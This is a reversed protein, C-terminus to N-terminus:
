RLVIEARRNQASEQSGIPNAGGRARVVIKAGSGRRALEKALYVRVAKARANSLWRRYFWNGRARKATYGDVTVETFGQAAIVAALRSLARKTSPTLKASSGSFRLTGVKVPAAIASYTAPVSASELGDGGLAVVAVKALPGLLGPYTWSSSKAAAVGVPVGNILIRYGKANPAGAWQIISTNASNVRYTASYPAAVTVTILAHVTQIDAGTTVTVPIDIQGSFDSDFAVRLVDHGVITASAVGPISTGADPAVSLTSPADLPDATMDVASKGDTTVPAFVPTSIGIVFPGMHATDTWNGAQDVVRVHAYWEGFALLPSTTSDSDENVTEPADDTAGRSWMVQYGDIGSGAGDSSGTYSLQVQTTRSPVGVDHSSSDLAPDSPPATDILIPGYYAGSSWNSVVDATGLNVYYTGDAGATFGYETTGAPHTISKTPYAHSDSTASIAFGKLPAVTGAAGTLTVTVDRSSVWTSVPHTDSDLAPDTPAATAPNFYEYAGIDVASGQPRYVGRRDSAPAGSSTGADVCPSGAPLSFDLTSTSAFGPAVSRNGTGGDGDEIDSYTATAGAALDDGNGWVICNTITPNGFYNYIGGSIPSANNGVITNNAILIPLQNAFIGGAATGYIGTNYGVNNAIVNNTITGGYAYVGAGYGQQDPSGNIMNGTITNGDLVSSGGSLYVGGGHLASNGDILNNTILASSNLAAIGGGGWVATNGAITNGKITPSSGVICVGGGWAFPPCYGGTIAFGSVTEGAGIGSITIVPAAGTGQLVSQTSGAGYLSVGNKMALSTNPYSGAAVYVDNGATAANIGRQVTLYPSGTSGDGTTDNGFISVHVPAAQVALPLALVFLATIAAVFLSRQIRM